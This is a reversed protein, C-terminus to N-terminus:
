DHLSPWAPQRKESFARVGERYDSSTLLLQRPARGLKGADQWERGRIQHVYDLGAGIALPSFGSIRHAVEIATAVPDDAIETVLGYERAEIASFERATLSLEVARREGVAHELARFILVPWLGVKVETLAFRADRAAVVIHANAVLGVGGALAAGHVAAVIPKRIRHIVSFLREHVDVLQVQDAELSERLDMGSCFAPGNATLVIAGLSHDTDAHDLASVVAACTAIDLANRKEPRNLTICLVRGTQEQLIM